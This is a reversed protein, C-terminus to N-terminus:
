IITGRFINCQKSSCPYCSVVFAVTQACFARFLDSLAYYVLGAPMTPNQAAMTAKLKKIGATSQLVKCLLKLTKKSSTELLGVVLSSNVLFSGSDEFWDVAILM